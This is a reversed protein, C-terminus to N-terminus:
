ATEPELPSGTNNLFAASSTDLRVAVPFDKKFFFVTRVVAFCVSKHESKHGASCLGLRSNPSENLLAATGFSGSSSLIEGRWFLLTPFRLCFSAILLERLTTAIKVNREELRAANQGKIEGRREFRRM